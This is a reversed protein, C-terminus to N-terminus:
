ARAPRGGAWRRGTLVPGKAEQSSVGWPYRPPMPLWTSCWPGTGLLVAAPSPDTSYVQGICGSTRRYPGPAQGIQPIARSGTSAVASVPGLGSSVSMVRLNRTASARDTGTTRSSIPPWRTGARPSTTEGDADDHAWSTSAVGTTSQAPQGTKVRPQTDTRVRFSLMNVSIAIPVPTAQSYLTTAVRAGPKNGSEKRM